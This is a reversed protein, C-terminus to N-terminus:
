KRKRKYKDTIPMLKMCYKEGVEKKKRERDSKIGRPGIEERREGEREREIM